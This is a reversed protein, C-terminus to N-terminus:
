IAQSLSKISVNLYIDEESARFPDLSFYHYLRSLCELMIGECVQVSGHFTTESHLAYAFGSSSDERVCHEQRPHIYNQLHIQRDYKEGRESDTCFVGPTVNQKVFLVCSFCDKEEESLLADRGNNIISFVLSSSLSKYKSWYRPSFM